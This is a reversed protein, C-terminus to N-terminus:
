LGSTWGKNPATWSRKPRRWDRSRKRQTARSVANTSRLQEIRELVQRREVLRAKAEALDAREIADDLRVLVTGEKVRAGPTIALEVIRGDTEPVIQVSNVARTTGVAEVNQYIRETEAQATEITVPGSGRIEVAEAPPALYTEYGWYGGYSILGLLGILLLQKFVSM